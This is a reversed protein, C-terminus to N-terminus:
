GTEVTYTGYSGRPYTNITVEQAHAHNEAERRKKNKKNVRSGEKEM